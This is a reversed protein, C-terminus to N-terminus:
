FNKARLSCIFPTVNENQSVAFKSRCSLCICGVMSISKKERGAKKKKKKVIEVCVARKAGQSSSDASKKQMMTVLPEFVLILAFGFKKLVTQHCNLVSCIFTCGQRQSVM